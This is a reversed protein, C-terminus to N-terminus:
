PLFDHTARVGITGLSVERGTPFTRVAQQSSPYLDYSSSFSFLLAILEKVRM